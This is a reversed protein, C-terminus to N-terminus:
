LRLRPVTCRLCADVPRHLRVKVPARRFARDASGYLSLLHPIPDLHPVRIERADGYFPDCTGFLRRLDRRSTATESAVDCMRNPYDEYDHSTM